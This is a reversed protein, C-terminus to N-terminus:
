RVVVIRFKKEKQNSSIGGAALLLEEGGFIEGAARWDEDCRKFFRRFTKVRSSGFRSTQESFFACNQTMTRMHIPSIPRKKILNFLGKDKRYKKTNTIIKWLPNLCFISPFDVQRFFLEFLLCRTHTHNKESWVEFAADPDRSTYNQNQRQGTKVFWINQKNLESNKHKSLYRTRIGLKNPDRAHFDGLM